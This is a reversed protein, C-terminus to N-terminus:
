SEDMEMQGDPKDQSEQDQEEAASKTSEKDEDNDTDEKEEGDDKADESEKVTVEDNTEMEVTNEEQETEEEVEKEEEEKGEDETASNKEGEEQDSNHQAKNDATEEGEKDDKDATYADKDATDADADDKDADDEPAEDVDADPDDLDDPEDADEDSNVKKESAIYKEALSLEPEYNDDGDDMDPPVDSDPDEADSEYDEKMFTPAVKRAKTRAERSAGGAEGENSDQDPPPEPTAPPTLKKIEPLDKDARGEGAMELNYYATSCGQTALHKAMKHGSKTYYGCICYVENELTVPKGLDFVPKPRNHFLIGHLNIARSCCTSYRCKTCCLYATYHGSQIMPRKCEFCRDKDTDYIAMDELNVSAFAYQTSLPKAPGTKKPAVKFLREDPKPMRTPAGADALFQTSDVDPFDKYSMHDKEQHHKLVQDNVFELCCKKCSNKKKACDEHKQLHVMYSQAAASNYGKDNFLSYTKLCLPCQLKDTRDHLETFHEIISKHCSTRHECVQCAYPMEAKVHEANMHLVMAAQNNYRRNCIQCVHEFGKIVHTKDMHDQMAISNDFDKYCYKCQSLDAFDIATTRHSEIHLHLHKMFELNNMFVKKCVQCKFAMDAKFETALIAEDGQLTGYYYTELEVFEKALKIKKALIAEPDEEPTTARRVVNLSRPAAVGPNVKAQTPPTVSSLPRKIGTNMPSATASRAPSPSPSPSSRAIVPPPKGGSQLRWDLFPNAAVRKLHSELAENKSATHQTLMSVKELMDEFCALPYQGFTERYSLEDLFQQLTSNTLASLSNQFMKPVVKKLYDMVQINTNAPQSSPNNINQLSCQVVNKFGLQTLTERDVSYDTYIKSATNVWVPLMEFIKRFREAQNAGSQPESVRIRINRSSRELVGLVEVRVERKNGEQSSTGLSIVGIEISQGPGGMNVLKEQAVMIAVARLLTFFKDVFANDVKVWQIVNTITTQCSWHYILKLANSPAIEFISGKLVSTYKTTSEPGHLWVYGGSAAFRKGDSYMGLKLKNKVGNVEEHQESRVLGNKILWETFKVPTLVLLGKVKADLESRKASAQSVVRQARAQVTLAPFSKRLRVPPAGVPEVSPDTLDIMMPAGAAAGGKAGGKPTPPPTAQKGSVPTIQRTAGPGAAGGRPTLPRGGRQAAMGRGRGASVAGRVGAGRMAGRPVGVTKSGRVAGRAQQTGGIPRSHQSPAVVSSVTNTLAGGAALSAAPVSGIIRGTKPDLLLRYGPPCTYTPMGGSMSSTVSTVPNAVTVPILPGVSTSDTVRFTVSNDSNSKLTAGKKAIEELEKMVKDFAKQKTKYFEKQAESLDDDVCEMFLGIDPKAAKTVSSAESNSSKDSAGSENRSRRKQRTTASM